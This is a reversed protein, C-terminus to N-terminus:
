PANLDNGNCDYGTEPYTCSGDDQTASQDYNCATVDTCGAIEFPGGDIVCRVAYGRNPSPAYGTVNVTTSLQFSHHYIFDEYVDSEPQLIATVDSFSTWWIGSVMGWNFPDQYGTASDDRFGSPLASFGSLNTGNGVEGYWGYTAKAEVGAVLEGGLHNILIQWETDTPIHWGSPCLGRADAVAYYNYLGGGSAVHGYFSMAGSTTTNWDGNSLYEIAGPIADGNLYTATRLNEAFWCQDGIEVTSYSLGSYTIADGCSWSHTLAESGTNMETLAVNLTTISDLMKQYDYELFVENGNVQGSLFDQLEAQASVKLIPSTIVSLLTFAFIKSSKM